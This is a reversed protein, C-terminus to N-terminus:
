ISLNQFFFKGNLFIVHRRMFRLIEIMFSFFLRLLFSLFLCFSTAFSLFYDFRCFTLLLSELLDSCFDNECIYNDDWNPFERYRWGQLVPWLFHMISPYSPHFWSFNSSFWHTFIWINLVMLSFGLSFIMSNARAAFSSM